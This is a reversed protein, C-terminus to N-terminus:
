LSILKIPYVSWCSLPQPITTNKAKVNLIDAFYSASKNKCNEWHHYRMHIFNDETGM